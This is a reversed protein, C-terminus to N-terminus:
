SENFLGANEPAGPIPGVNTETLSLVFLQPTEYERKDSAQSARAHEQSNREENM